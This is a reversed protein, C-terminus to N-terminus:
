NGWSQARNRPAPSRLDIRVIEALVAAYATATGYAAPHVRADRCSRERGRLATDLESLLRSKGVGAQGYVTVLHPHAERVVGDFLSVLM